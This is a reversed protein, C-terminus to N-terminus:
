YVHRLEYAILWLNSMHLSMSYMYSNTGDLGDIRLKCDIAM